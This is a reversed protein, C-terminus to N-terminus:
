YEALQFMYEMVVLVLFFPFLSRGKVQHGHRGCAEGDKRSTAKKKQKGSSMLCLWGSDDM